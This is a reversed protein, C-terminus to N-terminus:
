KLISIIFHNSIRHSRPSKPRSPNSTPCPTTTHDLSIFRLIIHPSGSINASQPPCHHPPPLPNLTKDILFPCASSSILFIVPSVKLLKHDPLNHGLLHMKLDSNLDIAIFHLTFHTDLVSYLVRVLYNIVGSDFESIRDERCWVDEIV